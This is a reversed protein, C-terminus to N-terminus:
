SSLRRGQGSLIAFLEGISLQDHWITMLSLHHVSDLDNALTEFELADPWGIEPYRARYIALLEDDPRLLLAQRRPIAFASAFLWLFQRIDEKSSDPFARRWLKGMCKRGRYLELGKHSIHLLLGGVVVAGIVILLFVM